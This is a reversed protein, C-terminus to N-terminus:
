SLTSTCLRMGRLLGDHSRGSEAAISAAPVWCQCRWASDQLDQMLNQPLLNSDINDQVHTRLLATRQAQPVWQPQPARPSAWGQRRPWKKLPLTRETLDRSRLAEAKPSLFPCAELLRRKGGLTSCDQKLCATIQFFLTAMLRGCERERWIYVGARSLSLCSLVGHLHTHKHPHRHIGTPPQKNLTFTGLWLLRHCSFLTSDVDSRVFARSCPLILGFM